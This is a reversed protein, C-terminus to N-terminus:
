VYIHQTYQFTNIKYSLNHMVKDLSVIETLYPVNEKLLSANYFFINITNKQKKGKCHIQVIFLM